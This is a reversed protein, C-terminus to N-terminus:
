RADDLWEPPEGPPKWVFRILSPADSDNALPYPRQDHNWWNDADLDCLHDIFQADLPRTSRTSRTSRRRGPATSM